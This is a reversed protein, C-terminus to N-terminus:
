AAEAGQERRAKDAAARAALKAKFSNRALESSNTSDELFVPGHCRECRLRVGPKMEMGQYGPRPIFNNARLAEGKRGVIQGSIHGCYYCKVDAVLQVGLMKMTM